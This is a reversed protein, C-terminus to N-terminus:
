FPIGTTRLMIERAEFRGRHAAVQTADWRGMLDRWTYKDLFFPRKFDGCTADHGVHHNLCLPICQDDDGHKLGTGGIGVHALQVETAGCICCPQTALWARYEAHEVNARQHKTSV